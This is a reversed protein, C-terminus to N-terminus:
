DSRSPQVATMRSLAEPSRFVFAEIAVAVGDDDNAPAIFHASARLKPTANAVVVRLSALELMSADNSGDGMAMVSDATIAFHQLLRRCAIGKSVGFPMVELYEPYTYFWELDTVVLQKLRSECAALSFRDGILLVKIVHDSLRVLDKMLSPRTGSRSVELDVHENVDTVFWELPTYVCPTAGEAKAIALVNGLAVNSMHSSSLIAQTSFEVIAGGNSAILYQEGPLIRAFRGVSAAPRGSALVVRVGAQSARFLARHNRQSLELNASLLTGDLDLFILEVDRVQEGFGVRREQSPLLCTM